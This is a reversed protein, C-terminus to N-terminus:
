GGDLVSEAMTMEGVSRINETEDRRTVHGFWALRRRRMVTAIPEM